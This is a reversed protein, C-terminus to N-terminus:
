RQQKVFYKLSIYAIVLFSVTFAVLVALDMFFHHPEFGLEELIM